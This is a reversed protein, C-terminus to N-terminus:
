QLAILIPIIGRGSEQSRLAKGVVSGFALTVDSAKMAYGPTPSSTLLDGVEVPGYEADVKCYTKGMLSIVVRPADTVNKDMVIGPRYTGAGAVVGVVKKDYSAHSEVLAGNDGMVLLTGPAPPQSGAFDFQEACDAGSLYVDGTVTITGNVQVNGDFCGANGSSRGYVGNGGATHIGAVASMGVGASDGHVADGKSSIGYVGPGAATNRGNVAPASTESMALIPPHAEGATEVKPGLNTGVLKQNLDPIGPM